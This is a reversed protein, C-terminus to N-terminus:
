GQLLKRHIEYDTGDFRGVHRRDDLHHVFEGGVFTGGVLAVEGIRLQV